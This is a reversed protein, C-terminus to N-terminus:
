MSSQWGILPMSISTHVFTYEFPDHRYLRFLAHTSLSSPNSIWALRSPRKGCQRHGVGNVQLISGRQFDYRKLERVNMKNAGSDLIPVSATASQSDDTILDLDHCGFIPSRWTISQVIRGWHGKVVSILEARRVGGIEIQKPGPSGTRVNELPPIRQLPILEFGEIIRTDRFPDDFQLASGEREDLVVGYMTPVIMVEEVKRLARSADVLENTLRVHDPLPVPGCENSLVYSPQEVFASRHDRRIRMRIVGSRDRGTFLRAERPSTWRLLGRPAQDKGHRHVALM